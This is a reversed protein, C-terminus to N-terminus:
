HQLKPICPMNSTLFARHMGNSCYHLSLTNKVQLMHCLVVAEVIVTSYTEGKPIPRSSNHKIRWTELNQRRMFCEFVSKFTKKLSTKANM